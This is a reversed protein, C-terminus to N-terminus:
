AGAQKLVSLFQEIDEDPTMWSTVFRYGGEPWTYFRAGAAMLAKATARPLDVFLENGQVPHRFQAGAIGALGEALRAAETLVKRDLAPDGLELACLVSKSM